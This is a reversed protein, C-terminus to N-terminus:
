AGCTGFKSGCKFSACKPANAPCVYKTNQLVGTQGCCLSDGVNTGFDAICPIKSDCSGDLDAYSNTKSDYGDIDDDGKSDDGKDADDGKSDDGKDYGKTNNALNYYYTSCNTKDKNQVLDCFWKTTQLTKDKNLYYTLKENMSPDRVFSVYDYPGVFGLLKNKDMVNIGTTSFIPDKENIHNIMSADTLESYYNNFCSPTTDDTCKAKYTKGYKYNDVVTTLSNDSDGSCKITGGLCYAYQGSLDVLNGASDKYNRDYMESSFLIRDIYAPPTYSSFGEKNYKMYYALIAIIILSVIVIILPIISNRKIKLKM